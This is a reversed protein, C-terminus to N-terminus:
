YVVNLKRRMQEYYSPTFYYPIDLYDAKYNNITCQLHITTFPFRDYVFWFPKMFAQRARRLLQKTKLKM